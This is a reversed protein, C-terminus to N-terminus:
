YSISVLESGRIKYNKDMYILLAHGAHIYVIPINSKPSKEIDSKKIVVPITKNCAKCIVLATKILDLNYFDKLTSQIVKTFHSFIDCSNGYCSNLLSTDYMDFFEKIFFEILAELLHSPIEPKSGISFVTHTENHIYYVIKVDPKTICYFIDKIPASRILKLELVTSKYYDINKWKFFNDDRDASGINVFYVDDILKYNITM